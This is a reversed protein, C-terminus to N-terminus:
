GGSLHELWGGILCGLTFALTPLVITACLMM